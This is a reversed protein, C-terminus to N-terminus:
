EAGEEDDDSDEDSAPDRLPPLNLEIESGQKKLIVFNEGIEEVHRDGVLDGPSVSKGNVIAMPEDKDYLIGNLVFKEDVSQVKAFGPEKLFPDVGWPLKAKTMFFSYDVDILHEFPVKIEESKPTEAKAPETKVEKAAPTVEVNSALSSEAMSLGAATLVSALIFNFKKM